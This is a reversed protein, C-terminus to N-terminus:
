KIQVFLIQKVKENSLMQYNKRRSFSITPVSTYVNLPFETIM